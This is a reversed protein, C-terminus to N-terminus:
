TSAARRRKRRHGIDGDDVDSVIENARKEQEWPVRAPAAEVAGGEGGGGGAVSLNMLLLAAKQQALDEAPVQREKEQTERRKEAIYELAPSGNQSEGAEYGPDFDVDPIM